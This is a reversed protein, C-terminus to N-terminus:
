FNCTYIRLPLLNLNRACYGDHYRSICRIVFTCYNLVHAKCHVYQATSIRERIMALVGRHIGSMNATGDYGQTRMNDLFEWFKSFCSLVIKVPKESARVFVLCEERLTVRGDTCEIFRVCVSIQEHTSVDTSWWWNFCRM